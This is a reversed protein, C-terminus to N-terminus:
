CSKDKLAAIERDCVERVSEMGNGAYTRYDYNAYGIGIGGQQELWDLREADRRLERVEAILSLITSPNAFEQFRWKATITEMTLDSRDYPPKDLPMAAEAAKQLVDLDDGSGGKRETAVQAAQWAAFRLEYFDLGDNTTRAWAEFDERPM